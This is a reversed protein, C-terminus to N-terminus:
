IEKMQRPSLYLEMSTELLQRELMPESRISWMAWGLDHSRAAVVIALSVLYEATRFMLYAAGGFFVCFVIAALTAM